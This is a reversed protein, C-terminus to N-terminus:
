SGKLKWMDQVLVYPHCVDCFRELSGVIPATHYMLCKDTDHSCHSGRNLYQHPHAPVGAPPAEPVQFFAHGLEHSVAYAFLGPKAPNYVALIRQTSKDYEGLFPGAAGQIVLNQILVQTDATTPGVGAPLAVTVAYLSGRTASISVDAATLLGNRVNDFGGAHNDEAAIWDGSAFLTGGQLPPDLALKDMTINVPFSAPAGEFDKSGSNGGPDWQADCVLAPVEIPKDADKVFGTFFQAKNSESVVLADANGGNVEIMYRPYIARPNMGNVTARTVALDPCAEMTSKVLLFKAASADLGPPNLGEVKV